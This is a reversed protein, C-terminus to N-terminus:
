QNATTREVTLPCYASLIRRTRATRRAPHDKGGPQGPTWKFVSSAFTRILLMPLALEKALIRDSTHEYEISRSSLRGTVQGASIKIDYLKGPLNYLRGVVSRRM